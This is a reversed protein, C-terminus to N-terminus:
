SSSPHYSSPIISPANGYVIAIEDGNRIVTDNLDHATKLGNIYIEPSGTPPPTGTAKWVDYFQALTFASDQPADIHVTGSKDDTSLWYSCTGNIVGINEPIEYSYRNVFIDIHAATRPSNSQGTGCGIGDIISVKASGDQVKNMEYSVVALTAVVAAIAAVAIITNKDKRREKEFDFKGAKKKTKKVMILVRQRDERSEM